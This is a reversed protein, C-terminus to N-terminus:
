TFAFLPALLFERVHMEESCSEEAERERQTDGPVVLLLRLALICLAVQPAARTLRQPRLAGLPTCANAGSGGGPLSTM